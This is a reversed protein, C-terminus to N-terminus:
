HFKEPQLNNINRASVIKEELGFEYSNIAVINGVVVMLLSESGVRSVQFSCTENCSPDFLSPSAQINRTQINNRQINCIIM